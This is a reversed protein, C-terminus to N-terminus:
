GLAARLAIITRNETICKEGNVKALGSWPELAIELADTTLRLREVLEDVDGLDPTPRTNWREIAVIEPNLGCAEPGLAKCKGCWVAKWADRKTLGTDQPVPEPQSGCFPCAKLERAEEQSSPSPTM